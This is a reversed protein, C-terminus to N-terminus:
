TGAAAREFPAPARSRAARLGGGRGSPSRVWRSPARLAGRRERRPCGAAGVRWTLLPRRGAPQLPGRRNRAEWRTGPPAAEGAASNTAAWKRTRPNPASLLCRGGPGPPARQSRVALGSHSSRQPQPPPPPQARPDPGFPPHSPPPPWAGAAPGTSLPSDSPLHSPSHTCLKKSRKCAAPVFAWAPSRLKSGWSHTSKPLSSGQSPTALHFLPECLPRLSRAPNPPVRPLKPLSTQVSRSLPIAICNSQRRPRLFSFTRQQITHDLLESFVGEGLYRALQGPESQKM